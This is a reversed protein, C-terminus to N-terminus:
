PYGFAEGWPIETDSAADVVATLRWFGSESHGLSTYPLVVSLM